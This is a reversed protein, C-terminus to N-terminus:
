YITFERQDEELYNYTLRVAFRAAEQIIDYRPQLRHRFTETDNVKVYILSGMGQVPLESITITFQSANPPAQWYQYFVDYFDRGIKSRTEDIVMGDIEMLIQQEARMHESEEEVTDAEASMLAQFAERFENLIKPDDRETQLKETTDSQISVLDESISESPKCVPNDLVESVSLDSDKFNAVNVPIRLSLGPTLLNLNEVFDTNAKYIADRFREDGFSSAISELDDGEQVIYLTHNECKATDTVVSFNLVFLCVTLSLFFFYFKGGIHRYAM